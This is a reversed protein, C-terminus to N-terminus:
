GDLRFSRIFEAPSLIPLHHKQSRFHKKNGTVLAAVRGGLAVELFPADSPDPLSFPLPAAVVSMGEEEVQTLFAEVHDPSFGFVPRLLVDRYEVLIRRDYALRIMGSAALRLITGAPGLPRLIGSVLVNTDLVVIM